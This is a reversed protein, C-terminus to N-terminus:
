SAPDASDARVPDVAAPAVVEITLAEVATLTRGPAAEAIPPEVSDVSSSPLEVVKGYVAVRDGARVTNGIRTTVADALIEVTLSTTRVFVADATAQGDGADRVWWGRVPEEDTVAGDTAADAPAVIGRDIVGEIWVKRGEMPSRDGRGQVAGIAVTDPRPSAAPADPPNGCGALLMMAPLLFVFPRLPM